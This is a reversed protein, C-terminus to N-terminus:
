QIKWKIAAPPLLSCQYSQDHATYVDIKIRTAFMTATAALGSSITKTKVAEEEEEEKRHIEIQVHTYSLLHKKDTPQTYSLLNKKDTPQTYRSDNKKDTPVTTPKPAYKKIIQKNINYMRHQRTSPSWNTSISDPIHKDTYQHRHTPTCTHVLKLVLSIFWIMMIKHAGCDIGVMHALIHADRPFIFFRDFSCFRIFYVFLNTFSGVSSDYLFSVNM